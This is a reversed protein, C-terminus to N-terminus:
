LTYYYFLHFYVGTIIILFLCDLVQRLLMLFLLIFFLVDFVTNFITGRHYISVTVTVPAPPASCYSSFSPKNCDYDYYM